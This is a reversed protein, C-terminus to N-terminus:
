FGRCHVSVDVALDSQRPDSGAKGQLDRPIPCRGCRQAAQELTEIGKANLFFVM